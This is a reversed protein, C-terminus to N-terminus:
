TKETKEHKIIGPNDKFGSIVKVMSCGASLCTYEKIIHHSQFNNTLHSPTKEFDAM